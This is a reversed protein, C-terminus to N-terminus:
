NANFNAGNQTKAAAGSDTLVVHATSTLASGNPDYQVGITCSGGSAALVTTATCPTTGVTTPTFVGPGSTKVIQPAATMTLPSAGNNTV